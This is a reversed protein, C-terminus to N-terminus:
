ISVLNGDKYLKIGREKITRLFSEPLTMEEQTSNRIHIEKLKPLLDLDLSADEGIPIYKGTKYKMFAFSLIDSPIIVKYYLSARCDLELKYMQNLLCQPIDLNQLYEGGAITAGYFLPYILETTCEEAFTDVDFKPRLVNDRYMLQNIVAFKFGVDNFIVSPKQDVNYIPNRQRQKIREVESLIYHLKPSSPENPLKEAILALCKVSKEYRLTLGYINIWSDAAIFEWGDMGEFLSISVAVLDAREEASWNDLSDLAIKLEQYFDAKEFVISERSAIKEILSKASSKKFFEFFM